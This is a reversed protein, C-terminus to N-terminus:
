KQKMNINVSRPIHELNTALSLYASRRPLLNLYSVSPVM